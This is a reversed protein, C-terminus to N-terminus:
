NLFKLMIIIFTYNFAWDYGIHNIKASMSVTTPYCTSTGIPLRLGAKSVEDPISSPDKKIVLQKPIGVKGACCIFMSFVNNFVVFTHCTCSGQGYKNVSDSVFLKWAAKLIAGIELPSSCVYDDLLLVVKLNMTRIYNFFNVMPMLCTWTLLMKYCPSDATCKNYPM